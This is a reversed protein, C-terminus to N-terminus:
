TLQKEQHWIQVVNGCNMCEHLAEYGNFADLTAILRHHKMKDCRNCLFTEFTPVESPDTEKYKVNCIGRNPLRSIRETYLRESGFRQSELDLSGM